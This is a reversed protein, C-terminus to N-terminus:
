QKLYRFVASSRWRGATKIRDVTWHHRLLLDSARGIRCSQTNYLSPNLNLSTLCNRLVVRVQSPTVPTRDRLVFFNEDDKEYPDRISLYDRCSKFPCILGNNDQANSGGEGLATIKIKQPNCYVGHTKSTYLVLMIKDKNTGIHVNCAKVSHPGLALEGVRMLGYYALLFLSRYLILLYQQDKLIRKLEFIIIELLKQTIPMRCYLVDNKLRCAKTITNLLIKNDCWPYNDDILIAKIASVYSKVTQSQTGKDVLYACFLSTHEEWSKPM